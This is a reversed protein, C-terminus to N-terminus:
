RRKGRKGGNRRHNERGGRNGRHNRGGKPRRFDRHYGRSEERPEIGALALRCGGLVPNAEVLVVRLIDALRFLRGTRRGELSHTHENHIWYDNPLANMPIFGDAGTGLLRVFLGSRTVGSIRGDFEEGIKTSLYLATYRDTAEREADIARRETKSIHDGIDDLRNMEDDTLGDDGQKYLRILARHVILDAYRRIPSTFHAYRALALGFHGINEPSYVAQAQSRLMVENIMPAEENGVFKELIRALDISRLNQGLPLKIDFTKLFARLSELKELSPSDHIRYLGAMGREELATAAAVNALIMFEEILKHADLRARPSIDAVKGDPGITIKTEQVDLDLTGRQKRAKLLVDYAAYLPRIVDNMLPGTTDDPKGDYAAQVQEYTLRAASRMLGRTFHFRQMSGDPAVHMEVALCARDVKPKLSCLENSLAEPLMPVVRDPFYVSNGRKFAEFDLSSGPTVYNSVDAIAVILKWNDGDKEAFVADDFDRADAGDITVLPIKRLDTRNGLVPAKFSNAEDEVTQPFMWPIQQRAIAMLSVARPANFPGLNEIVVAQKLGLRMGGALDAVVVDGDNITISQEDALIYEDRNKRDTSLLRYGKGVQQVLAVIKAATKPLKKIPRASYNDGDRELAVLLKDGKGLGSLLLTREQHKSVRMTIDPAKGTFELPRLAYLGADIVKAVEATTAAPLAGRRAIKRGKQKEVHPGAELERLLRKLAIRDDDKIGFARAIERKSLPKSSENIYKQLEEKTPLHTTKKKNKNENKM